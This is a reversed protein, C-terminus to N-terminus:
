SAFIDVWFTFNTYLFAARNNPVDQMKHLRPPTIKTEIANYKIYCKQPNSKTRQAQRIDIM